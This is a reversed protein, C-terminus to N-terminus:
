VGSTPAATAMKDTGAIGQLPGPAPSNFSIKGTGSQVSAKLRDLASIGAIKSADLAEKSQEDKERLKELAAKQDDTLQIGLSQLEATLQNRTQQEIEAKVEEIITGRPNVMMKFVQIEEPTSERLYPMGAKIENYLYLADHYERAEHVNNVFLIRKGDQRHMHHNKLTMTFYLPKELLISPFPNTFGQVVGKASTAQQSMAPDILSPDQGGTPIFQSFDQAGSM